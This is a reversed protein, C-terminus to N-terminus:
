AATASSSRAPSRRRTSSRSATTTSPPTASRSAKTPTRAPWAPPPRTSSRPPGSRPPWRPARQLHRRQRADRLGRRRPQPHRGRGDHDVTGPHAVTRPRRAATAPRSPSSSAPERPSCSRSRSRTPSTPRRAASRTTSSTSATPSPRTSPRSSTPAHHRQGTSRSRDVLAGQVDAIRARPAMGSINGFVAAAGTAPVDRQRRRHRRHAHRPRRLRAALQVGVPVSANIGADGGFGANFCQAGILKQNCMSANFDEGPICSATGAPSRSTVGAQRGQHRQREHRDPRLLQPTEPWIGSDVIGIIVGDGASGVGGLQEWLGGPTTSASSRPRRRPTRREHVEDRTVRRPRGQRGGAQEGPAATLRAAFGNFSFAYDYLKKGGGVAKARVDHRDSLYGAYKSSRARATPDIKQGAAPKTAKLGKIGGDYAVVPLDVIQVIYIGAETFKSAPEAATVSAPIMAALLLSSGLLALLRRCNM